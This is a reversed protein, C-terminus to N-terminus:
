ELKASNMLGFSRRTYREIKLGTIGPTLVRKIDIGLYIIMKLFYSYYTQIEVSMPNYM